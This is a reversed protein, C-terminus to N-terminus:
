NLAETAGMGYMVYERNWARIYVLDTKIGCKVERPRASHSLWNECAKVDNTFFYWSFATWYTACISTIMKGPSMKPKNKPFFQIIIIKEYKM